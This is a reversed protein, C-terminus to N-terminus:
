RVLVPWWSKRFVKRLGRKAESWGGRGILAVQTAARPSDGSLAISRNRTCPTSFLTGEWSRRDSRNASLVTTSNVVKSCCCSRGTEPWLGSSTSRSAVPAPTLSAWKSGASGSSRQVGKPASDAGSDYRGNGLPIGEIRWWYFRGYQNAVYRGPLM